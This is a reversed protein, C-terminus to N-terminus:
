VRYGYTKSLFVTCVRKSLLSVLQVLKHFWAQIKPRAEILPEAEILVILDSGRSTNSARGTNLAQSNLSKRDM